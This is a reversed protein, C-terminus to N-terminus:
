PDTANDGSDIRGLTELGLIESPTQGLYVVGGAM